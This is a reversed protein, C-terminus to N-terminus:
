PEQVKVTQTKVKCIYLKYLLSEFMFLRSGHIKRTDDISYARM